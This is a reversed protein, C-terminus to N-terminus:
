LRHGGEPSTVGRTDLLRTAAEEIAAVDYTSHNQLLVTVAADRAGQLPDEVRTAGPVDWDLVYPDHYQLDAGMALLRNAVALVPSERQDAIDPKYTVGLLLVKSGKVALGHENLLEMCRHAVYAPM